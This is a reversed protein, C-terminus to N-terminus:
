PERPYPPLRGDRRYLSEDRRPEMKAPDDDGFIVVSPDASVKEAARALYWTAKEINDVSRTVTKQNEIMLNNFRMLVAMLELKVEDIREQLGAITKEASEMSGKIHPENDQIIRQVDALTAEARDLVGLLSARVEDADVQLKQITIKAEHIIERLEGSEFIGRVEKVIGQIDELTAAIQPRFEDVQRGIDALTPDIGTYLIEEGAALPPSSEEGLDLEVYREGLLGDRRLMLSANERVDLDSTIEIRVMVLGRKESNPPPIVESVRGVRVGGITVATGPRIFKVDIFHAKYRTTTRTYERVDGVYLLLVTFTVVAITIVAGSKLQASSQPEM